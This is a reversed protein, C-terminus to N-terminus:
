ISLENDVARSHIKGNLVDSKCPLKLSSSSSSTKEEEPVYYYFLM